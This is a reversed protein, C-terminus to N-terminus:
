GILDISSLWKVGYLGNFDGAEGTIINEDVDAQDNTNNM